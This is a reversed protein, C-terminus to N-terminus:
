EDVKEPNSYFNGDMVIAMQRVSDGKWFEQRTDVLETIYSDDPVVDSVTLGSTNKSMMLGSFLAVALFVIPILFRGVTSLLIPAIFDGVASPALKEEEEVASVEKGDKEDVPLISTPGGGVAIFCCFAELRGADIRKQDIVLVAPLWTM